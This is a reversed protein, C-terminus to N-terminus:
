LSLNTILYFCSYICLYICLSLTRGGEEKSIFWMKQGPKLRTRRNLSEFIEAELVLILWHKKLVFFPLIILCSYNFSKRLKGSPNKQRGTSSLSLSFSAHTHTHTYWRIINPLAPPRSAQQIEDYLSKQLKIYKKRLKVFAVARLEDTYKM